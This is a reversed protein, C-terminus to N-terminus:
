CGLVPVFVSNVGLCSLTLSVNLNVFYLPSKYAVVQTYYGQLVQKLELM